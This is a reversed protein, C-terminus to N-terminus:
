LRQGDWLKVERQVRGDGGDDACGQEGYDLFTTRQM